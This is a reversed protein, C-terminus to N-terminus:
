QPTQGALGKDISELNKLSKRAIAIMQFHFSDIMQKKDPGPLTPNAIIGSIAKRMNSFAQHQSTLDMLRGESQALRMQAKFGEADGRQAAHKMSVLNQSTEKYRDEFLQISESNVGGFMTNFSKMFPNELISKTPMDGKGADVGAAQLATSITSVVANGVDGSWSLMMHDINPPAIWDKHRLPPVIDLVSSISKALSSTYNTYRYAPADGELAAPVIQRQTFPNYNAMVELPKTLPSQIGPLFAGVMSSGFDKFANPNKQYLANLARVPLAGFILGLERGSPIHSFHGRDVQTKGGTERVLGLERLSDLNDNPKADQWDSVKITHFLDQKYKPMEQYMPDDKNNWWTLLAPLTVYMGAQMLVKSKNENYARLLREPGQLGLNFFPIVSNIARINSGMRQFDVTVERSNFASEKVSKGAERSRKFEALRTAQEAIAGAQEIYDIPRKLVNWTRDILGTEKSMEFINTHGYDKGFEHFQKLGAGSNLYEFWLDSKEKGFFEGVVKMSDIFPMTGVKSFSGMTAQDVLWNSFLFRPNASTLTLKSVKAVASAVKFIAGRTVPDGGLQEFAEAIEPTTRYKEAVGNRMVTFEGKKPDMKEVDQQLQEPLEGNADLTAKEGGGIKELFQKGEEGRSLMENVFELKSKNIEGLKIINITRNVDTISPRLIDKESGTLNKFLSTATRQQKAKGTEDSVRRIQFYHEHETKFREASEKSLMGTGVAYDLLQNHYETLKKSVDGYKAEYENVIKELKAKEVSGSTLGKGEIELFRKATRYEDLADVDKKVDKVIEELPMGVKKGNVDTVGEHLFSYVKSRYDGVMRMSQYAGEAGAKKVPDLYDYIKTYLQDKTLKNKPVEGSSLIGQVSAKAEELSGAAPPAPPENGTKEMPLVNSLEPHELVMKNQVENLGLGHFETQEERMIEIKMEKSLEVEPESFEISFESGLRVLKEAKLNLKIQAISQKKDAMSQQSGKQYAEAVRKQIDKNGKIRELVGDFHAVRDDVFKTLSNVRDLGEKGGLANLIQTEEDGIKRQAEISMDETIPTKQLEAYREALSREEPSIIAATKSREKQLADAQAKMQDLAQFATPDVKKAAELREAPSIRKEVDRFLEINPGVPSKEDQTNFDFGKQEEYTKEVLQLKGDGSLGPKNGSETPYFGEMVNKLQKESMEIIDAEATRYTKPVESSNIMLEQKLVPNTQSHEYVQEPKIGTEAYINHLKEIGVGASHMGFILASASVFDKQAPMHGELASGVTTMTAMESALVSANRIGAPLLKEMAASSMKAGVKGGILNTAAGTVSGKITEMLAGSARSWLDGFNEVEGKSYQDILLKRLGAPAGWAGIVGGAVGGAPGGMLGVATGYAGGVGMIPLDGAFQAAASAIDYALPGNEPIKVDPMKKNILLGLGSIGFAAEIVEIIDKAERPGTNFNPSGKPMIGGESPPVVPPTSVDPPSGPLDQMQASPPLANPIKWNKLNGEIYDNYPKPDIVKQQVLPAPEPTAFSDWPGAEAPAAAAQPQATAIDRNIQQLPAEAVGGYEEWPNPM